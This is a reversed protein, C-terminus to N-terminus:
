KSKNFVYRNILLVVVVWVVTRFEFLFSSRAIYLASGLYVTFFASAFLSPLKYVYMKVEAYRISYGYLFMGLAVGFLGFDFYFDAVVSTGNGSTPRDGQYIWTVFSASGAYKQSNNEFIVANFMNFFPLSATLQQFQFRGYLFDHKDPFYDVVQHISNVSVSLESTQPLFSDIKKKEDDKLALEIKEKFSVDSGFSRAIGLITMVISAIVITALLIYFKYKIKTVFLFGSLIYLSITILPGRDGSLLIILLYISISFLPLFGLSLLYNKLSINTKNQIVLNRTKQIILAIIFIKLLLNFYSVGTGISESGYGGLVYSMNITSLFLILFIFVLIELAKTKYVKEKHINRIFKVKYSAYGILFMNYGIASVVLAKVVIAKNVFIFYNDASVNGLIYDIYIQFCVILLGLIALTSHKFYQGKLEKYREKKTFFLVTSLGVSTLIIAIVEKDMEKDAIFYYVFLIITLAIYFIKNLMNNKLLNAKM